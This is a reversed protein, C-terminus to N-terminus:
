ELLQHERLASLEVRYIDYLEPLLASYQLVKNKDGSHYSLSELPVFLVRYKKELVRVLWSLLLLGGYLLGPSPM